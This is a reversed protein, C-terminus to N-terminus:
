ASATNTPQADQALDMSELTSDALQNSSDQTAEEVDKTAETVDQEPQSKTSPKNSPANFAAKEEASLQHWLSSAKKVLDKHALEPFQKKLESRREQVFKLFPSVPKKPKKEAKTKPKKHAAPSPAPKRKPSAPTAAAADLVDLLSQSQQSAAHSAESKSLPTKRAFPNSAKPKPSRTAPAAKRPSRTPKVVPTTQVEDLEEEDSTVDAPQAVKTTRKAQSVPTRRVGSDPTSMAPHRTRPTVPTCQVPTPSAAVVGQQARAARLKQRLQEKQKQATAQQVIALREVLMTSNAKNALKMAVTFSSPLSLRTSLDLARGWKQAQVARSICRIVIQDLKKQEQQIIRRDDKSLEDLGEYDVLHELNMKLRLFEEEVAASESASVIPIKLPITSILPKPLVKPYSEGRCIVCLLETGTLGTIWYEDSKTKETKLTNLEAVPTWTCGWEKVLVKIINETDAVAPVGTESFGIWTLQAKPSLPLRGKHETVRKEVDMVLVEMNQDENLGLGVHYIMMLKSEFAAMAVIPGDVCFVHMPIGNASFLRIYRKSTAVAVFATDGGGVALAEIEEGEPLFTQWTEDTSWHKINRCFLVSPHDRTDNSDPVHSPAALALVQESLSGMTFGFHDVLRIPRHKSTNHFEVDISSTTEEERSIIMGIDNWVLFRKPDDVPTASPQFAPQCYFQPAQAYQVVEQDDVVFEDDVASTLIDTEDREDDSDLINTPQKRQVRKLVRKKTSADEDDDDDDFMHSLAEMDQKSKNAAEDEAIEAESPKAKISDHIPKRWVSFQGLIDGYALEEDSPSWALSTICVRKPHKFSSLVQRTAVEWILISGDVGVSALYKANNSYKVLSVQCSHGLEEFRYRDDLSRDLVQISKGCPCAICNGSRDFDIGYMGQDAPDSQGSCSPLISVERHMTGDKLNWLRLFGDQSSSALYNLQPDFALHQIPGFSGALEKVSMDLMSITKITFDDCGAACMSGTHNIAVARCPGQFRALVKVFKAEKSLDFQRIHHDECATLLTTGHVALDLVPGTNDDIVHCDEDEFSKFINVVTNEGGTVIAGSNNYAVTTVGDGHASRPRPQLEMQAASGSM